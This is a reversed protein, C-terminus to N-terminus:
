SNFPKPQNQNKMIKSSSSFKDGLGSPFPM